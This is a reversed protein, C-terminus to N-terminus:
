AVGGPLVSFRRGTSIPRAPEPIRVATATAGHAALLSVAMDESVPLIGATEGTARDRVVVDLEPAGDTQQNLLEVLHIFAATVTAPIQGAPATDATREHAPRVQNLAEDAQSPFSRIQANM